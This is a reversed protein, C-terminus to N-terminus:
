QGRYRPVIVRVLYGLGLALFGLLAPVVLFWAIWYHWVKAAVVLEM